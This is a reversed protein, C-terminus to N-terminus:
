NVFLLFVMVAAPIALATIVGGVGVGVVWDARYRAADALRHTAWAMPIFLVAQGIFWLVGIGLGAGCQQQGPVDGGCTSEYLVAGSKFYAYIAVAAGVAYTGGIWLFFTLIEELYTTM